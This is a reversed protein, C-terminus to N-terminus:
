GVPDVAEDNGNARAGIRVDTAYSELARVGAYLADLWMDFSEDISELENWQSADDEELLM